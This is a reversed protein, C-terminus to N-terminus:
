LVKTLRLHTKPMIPPPPRMEVSLQPARIRNISGKMHLREDRAQKNKLVPRLVIQSNSSAAQPESRQKKNVQNWGSYDQIGFNQFDNSKHNNRHSNQNQNNNHSNRQKNSGNQNQNQNKGKNYNVLSGVLPFKQQQQNQQQNMQQNLHQTLQQHHNNNGHNGSQGSNKKHRQPSNEQGFVQYVPSHSTYSGMQNPAYSKWNSPFKHNQSASEDLDKLQDNVEAQAIGGLM